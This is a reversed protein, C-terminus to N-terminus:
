KVSHLQCLTVVRGFDTLLIYLKNKLHPIIVLVIISLLGRSCGMKLVKTIIDRVSFIINFVVFDLFIELLKHYLVYFM